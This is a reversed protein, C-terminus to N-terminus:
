EPRGAFPPQNCTNLVFVIFNCSRDVKLLCLQGRYPTDVMYLITPNELEHNRADHNLTLFLDLKICCYASM